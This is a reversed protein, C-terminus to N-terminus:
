LYSKILIEAIDMASIAIGKRLNDTVCWMNVKRDNDSAVRVRGVNIFDRALKRYAPSPETKGAKAIKVDPIKSLITTVEAASVPHEFRLTLVESQAYFVPVQICTVDLPFAGDGMLDKVQTSILVEEASSGSELIPSTQALVNFAMQDSFPGHEVKLGNLMKGTQSALAEVGAKGASSVPRLSVMEAETLAHKRGLETAITSLVLASPHACRIWAGGELDKLLNPNVKAAVTISNDITNQNRCDICFVKSNAADVATKLASVTEEQEGTIFIIDIGAIDLGELAKMELTTSGLAAPEDDYPNASLTCINAAAFQRESLVELLSDAIPNGVGLLALKINKM